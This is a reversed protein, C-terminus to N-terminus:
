DRKKLQKVIGESELDEIMKREDNLYHRYKSINDKAKNVQNNLVDIDSQDLDDRTIINGTDLHKLYMKNYIEKIKKNIDDYIDEGIIKRILHGEGVILKKEIIDQMFHYITLVPGPAEDNRALVNDLQYFSSDIVCDQMVPTGYKDMYKGFLMIAMYENIIEYIFDVKSDLGTIGFSNILYEIGKDDYFNLLKEKHMAHNVEHFITSLSPNIGHVTILPIDVNPYFSGAVEEERKYAFQKYFKEAFKDDPVSMMYLYTGKKSKNYLISYYLYNNYLGVIDDLVKEEGESSMSYDDILDKSLVSANLLYKNMPLDDVMNYKDVLYKKIEKKYHYINEKIFKRDYGYGTLIILMNDIVYKIKNEHEKGYFDIFIDVFRDKLSEYVVTNIYKYDKYIDVM